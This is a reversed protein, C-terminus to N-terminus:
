NREHCLSYKPCDIDFYRKLTLFSEAKIALSHLKVTNEFTITVFQDLQIAGMEMVSALDCNHDACLCCGVHAGQSASSILRLSHLRYIPLLLPPSALSFALPTSFLLWLMSNASLVFM